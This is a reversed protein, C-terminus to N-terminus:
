AEQITLTHGFTMPGLLALFQGMAIKSNEVAPEFRGTHPNTMPHSETGIIVCKKSDTEWNGTHIECFNHEGPGAEMQGVIGLVDNRLTWTPGHTPSMYPEMTYVGEPLCSIVGDKPPEITRFERDLAIMVGTTALALYTRNIVVDTM